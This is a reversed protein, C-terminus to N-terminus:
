FCYGKECQINVFPLLAEVMAATGIGNSFATASGAAVALALANRASKTRLWGALFGAVSSDGAGVSNVVTGSPADAYYVAQETVLVAGDGALSVLVNVAGLAQLKQAYFVAQERSEIRQAFFDGLEHHDPKILFPRRPLVDLLMKGSVDAVIRVDRGSLRDMIDGYVSSSMGKPISGSLVLVDGAQLEKELRDFFLEKESDSVAPGAGNVETEEHMKLKVNIRSFGEKLFLFNESVGKELILKRIEQGTFGALFGMAKTEFGLEKLMLSVNIGKGGPMVTESTSRNVSGVDFKKVNMVYDLSPNLTVTYIMFIETKM